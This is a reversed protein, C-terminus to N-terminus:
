LLLEWVKSDVVGTKPLNNLKQFAKVAYEVETGFNADIIVMYGKATLLTQLIEVYEGQSGKRLIPYRKQMINHVPKEKPPKDYQTLEYKPIISLVTDVEKSSTMYKCDKIQKMQTSYHVDAQVKDYLYTNLLEYYNFVCQEMNKYSRFDAKKPTLVGITYEENTGSTYFTKDWYKTATKGTGVKQGLFANHERMIQNTGYGSEVCAMGICVSPLVKGLEKYAKQACPAIEKIFAKCEQSNAM